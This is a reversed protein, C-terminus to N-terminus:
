LEKTTNEPEFMLSKGRMAEIDSLLDEPLLQRARVHDAREIHRAARREEEETPSSLFRKRKRKSMGALADNREFKARGSEATTISFHCVSLPGDDSM